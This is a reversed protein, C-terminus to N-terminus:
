KLAERQVKMAMLRAKREPPTPEGMFTPPSPNAKEWEAKYEDLLTAAENWYSNPDILMCELLMALRVANRDDIDIDPRAVNDVVLRLDRLSIRDVRGATRASAKATAEVGFHCTSGDPYTVRWVDNMADKRRLEAHDIM